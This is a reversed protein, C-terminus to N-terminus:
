VVELTMVLGREDRPLGEELRRGAKATLLDENNTKSVRVKSRQGKKHEKSEGVGATPPFTGIGGRVHSM